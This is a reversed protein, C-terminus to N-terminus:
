TYRFALPAARAFGDTLFNAVAPGDDAILIGRRKNEFM